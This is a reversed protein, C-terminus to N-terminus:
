RTRVADVALVKAYIELRKSRVAALSYRQRVLELGKAAMRNLKDRDQSLGTCADAFAQATDAVAYEEGATGPLGEVGVTTTVVPCSASWAALIKTRIGSGVWLPVIMIKHLLATRLDPAFGSFRIDQAYLNLLRAQAPLSWKGIIELNADPMRSKVMPWVERLFWSLGDFNPHHASSAVFVFQKCAQSFVLPAPLPDEPTPFPSVHVELSPCLQQLADRDVESFVIADHFADLFASEEVGMRATLYRANANDAKNEDLFRRAYVHHVQHHVFLLPKRGALFPGLSMMESFEAQVLDCGKGLEEELAGVFDQGLCYFPYFPADRRLPAPKTGILRGLGPMRSRVFKGITKRLRVRLSSRASASYCRVPRVKVHPFTSSFHNADAEGEPSYVPVVLTFTCADRLAEFTRYQAVRGGESLPWPVYPSALLIHM